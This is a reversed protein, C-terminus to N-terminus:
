SIIWTIRKEITDTVNRTLYRRTGLKRRGRHSRRRGRQPQTIANDEFSQSLKKSMLLVSLIVRSVLSTVSFIVSYRVNTMNQKKATLEGGGLLQTVEARVQDQVQHGQSEPDDQRRAGVLRDEVLGGESLLQRCLQAPSGM